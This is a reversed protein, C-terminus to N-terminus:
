KVIEVSMKTALRDAIEPFTLRDVDNWDIVVSHGPILAEVAYSSMDLVAAALGIACHSGDEKSYDGFCQKNKPDRLAALWLQFQALTM